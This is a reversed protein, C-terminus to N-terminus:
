RYKVDFRGDTIHVLKTSDNNQRLTGEFTGAIIRQVTDFKTITIAAKGSKLFSGYSTENVRDGANLTLGFSRIARRTPSPVVYTTTPYKGVRVLSDLELYFTENRKPTDLRTNVYFGRRSSRYDYDALLENSACGGLGYYCVHGYTIWVRGDVVFGFTNAGSQTIPPLTLVPEPEEKKQCKGMSLLPLLLLFRFYKLNMATPLNQPIPFPIYRIGLVYM